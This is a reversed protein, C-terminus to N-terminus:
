TNHANLSEKSKYNIVATNLQRIKPINCLTNRIIKRTFSLLKLTTYFKM